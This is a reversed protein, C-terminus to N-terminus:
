AHSRTDIGRLEAAAGLDYDDDGNDDDNIVLQLDIWFAKIWLIAM